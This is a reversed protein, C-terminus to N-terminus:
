EGERELLKNIYNVGKQYVLTKLSINTSGDPKTYKSEIVRFYGRDIFTQFPINDKQLVKKERLFEFLKNRGINKDLVKAVKAMDFATKSNTVAEFFEVKPKQELLLKEQLEIQEAQKSALLLAESFTQPINFNSQSLKQKMLSFAKVLNVKFRKVIENNRMFSMILMSQNENLHTIKIPRGGNSNESKLDTFEVTGFERLETINEKILRMVTEHSNQVNEAIVLSSVLLEGNKETVIEQSFLDSQLNLSM